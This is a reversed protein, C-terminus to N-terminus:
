ILVLFLDNQKAFATATNAGLKDSGEAVYVLFADWREDKTMEQM